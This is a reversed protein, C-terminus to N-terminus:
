LDATRKIDYPVTPITLAFCELEANWSPCSQVYYLVKAATQKHLWKEFKHALVFNPITWVHLICFRGHNRTMKSKGRGHERMRRELETTVGVYLFTDEFQLVYTYAM